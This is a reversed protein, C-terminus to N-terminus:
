PLPVGSHDIGAVFLVLAVAVAVIGFVALTAFLVPVLRDGVGVSADDEPPQRGSM